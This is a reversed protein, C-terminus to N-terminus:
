GAIGVFSSILESKPLSKTGVSKVLNVPKPTQQSPMAYHADAQKHSALTMSASSFEVQAASLISM